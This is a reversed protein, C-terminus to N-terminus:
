LLTPKIVLHIIACQHIFLPLGSLINRELYHNKSVGAAIPSL